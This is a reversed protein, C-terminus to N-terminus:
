FMYIKGPETEERALALLLLLSRMVMREEKVGTM